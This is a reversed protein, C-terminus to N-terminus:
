DNVDSRVVYITATKVGCALAQNHTEVALDIHKGKIAGGTDDAVRYELNGDGFDILVDSGLPILSTDVACSWGAAVKSGSATIGDGTGCIHKRKETCYFTVTVDDIREAKALLAAEILENEYDEPYVIPEQAPKNVDSHAMVFEREIADLDSIVFEHVEVPVPDAKAMNTALLVM